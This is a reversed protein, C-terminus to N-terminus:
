IKRNGLPGGKPLIRPCLGGWGFNPPKKPKLFKFFPGRANKKKGFFPNRQPSNEPMTRCNSPPPPPPPALPWLQPWPSYPSLNKKDQIKFFFKIKAGWRPLPVGRKRKFIEFVPGGGVKSKLPTWNLFGGPGNEKLPPPFSQKRQKTFRNSVNKEPKKKQWPPFPPPTTM